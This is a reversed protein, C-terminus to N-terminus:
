RRKAAAAASLLNGNSNELQQQQQQHLEQASSTRVATASRKYERIVMDLEAKTDLLHQQMPGTQAHYLLLM